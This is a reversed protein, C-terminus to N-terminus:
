DLAFTRVAPNQNVTGLIQLNRGSSRFTVATKLMVAVRQLAFKDQNIASATLGDASVKVDM